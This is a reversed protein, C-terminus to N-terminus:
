APTRREPAVKADAGFNLGHSGFELSVTPDFPLGLERKAAKLIVRLVLHTLSSLVTSLRM